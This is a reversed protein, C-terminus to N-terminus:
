GGVPDTTASVSGRRKSGVDPSRKRKGESNKDGKGNSEKAPALVMM